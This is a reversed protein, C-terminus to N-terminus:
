RNRSYRDDDVETLFVIRDRNIYIPYGATSTVPIFHEVAKEFYNASEVVDLSQVRNSGTDLTVNTM